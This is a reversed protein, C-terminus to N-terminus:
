ARAAEEVVRRAEEETPASGCAGPETSRYRYDYKGNVEPGISGLWRDRLMLDFGGGFRKARWRPKAERRM